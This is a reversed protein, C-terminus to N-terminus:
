REVLGHGCRLHSYLLNDKLKVETKRKTQNGLINLFYEAMTLFVRLLSHTNVYSHLLILFTTLYRVSYRIVWLPSGM